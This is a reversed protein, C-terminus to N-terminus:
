IKKKKKKKIINFEKRIVGDSIFKNGNNYNDIQKDLCWNYSWRATGSSQWLLKEQEKDPILRVKVGTIM